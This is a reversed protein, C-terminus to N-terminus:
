PTSVSFGKFSYFRGSEKRVVEEMNKMLETGITFVHDQM